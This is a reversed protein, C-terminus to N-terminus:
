TLPGNGKFAFSGKALNGRSGEIKCTTLIAKGTLRDGSGANRGAIVINYENGVTILKRVDSNAMLLFGTTFSWSKRGSIVAVWDQNTASSIEITDCDCKVENSRTAAIANGDLTIIINNGLLAM